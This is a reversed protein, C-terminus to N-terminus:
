PLLTVCTLLLIAPGCLFLPWSFRGHPLPRALTAAALATVALVPLAGPVEGAGAVALLLLLAPALAVM